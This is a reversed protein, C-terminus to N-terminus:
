AAVGEDDPHLRARHLHRRRSGRRPDGRHWARPGRGCGTGRRRTWRRELEEHYLQQAGVPGEFSLVGATACIKIVEAGHKIQYRVAESSEPGDAVGDEPRQEARGARLRHRRLARRHHRDRPGRIMPAGPHLRSSRGGWRSTPSSARASTACRPSDRACRTGPTRREACRGSRRRAGSRSRSGTAAPRHHPPHAPRDARAAADRRGSGPARAGAPANGGVSRIRDEKVMVLAPSVMRGGAVDLMRAARVVM